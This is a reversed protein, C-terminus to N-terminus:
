EDAASMLIKGFAAVEVGDRAELARKRESLVVHGSLSNGEKLWHRVSAGGVALLGRGKKKVVVISGQTSLQRM